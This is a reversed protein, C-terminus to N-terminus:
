IYALRGQLGRLEKLNKLEPMEQIARIKSQDIEIGRHHVIFGLIEWFHRWVRMKIPENEIPM